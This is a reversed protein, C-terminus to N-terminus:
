RWRDSSGPLQGIVKVVRNGEHLCEMQGGGRLVGLELVKRAVQLVALEHSVRGVRVTVREGKKVAERGDEAWLWM